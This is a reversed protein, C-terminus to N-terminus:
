SRVEIMTDTTLVRCNEPFTHYARIRIRKQWADLALYSLGGLAIRGNSGFHYFLGDLENAKVLESQVAVFANWDLTECGFTTEIELFESIRITEHQKGKFRLVSIPSDPMEFHISTATETVFLPKGDIANTRFEIVHGTSTLHLTVSYNSREITRTAVIRFFEPHIPRAYQLLVLESVCPRTTIM